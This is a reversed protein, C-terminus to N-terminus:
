RQKHIEAQLADALRTLEELSLGALREAPTHPRQLLDECLHIVGLKEVELRAVRLV